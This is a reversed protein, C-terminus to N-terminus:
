QQSQVHVVYKAISTRDEPSIQPYGVMQTDPIGKEITAAVEEVSTGQKYEAVMAFNRPKPNMAAGAPGDGLGTEGHCGACGNQAYLDMGRTVDADMASEGSASDGEGSKDGCYTALSFIAAIAVAAFLNEKKFLTM